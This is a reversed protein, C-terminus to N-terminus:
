LLIADVIADQLPFMKKADEPEEHDYGIVHLVGHVILMVLESQFGDEAQKQAQEDSIVVDGLEEMGEEEMYSFSLVDTTKDKNRYQKNLKHMEEDSIMRIAILGDPISPIRANLEEQVKQILNEQLQEERMIREQNVDIRLM